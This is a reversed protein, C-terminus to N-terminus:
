SCVRGRRARLLLAAPLLRVRQAHATVRRRFCSRRRSDRCPDTFPARDARAQPRIAPRPLYPPDGAKYPRREGVRRPSQQGATGSPRRLRGPAGEQTGELSSPRSARDNRPPGGSRVSPRAPSPISIPCGVASGSRSRAVLTTACKRSRRSSAGCPCGAGSAFSSANPAGEFTCASWDVPSDPNM